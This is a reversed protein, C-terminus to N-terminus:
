SADDDSPEDSAKAEEEGGLERLSRQIEALERDTLGWLKAAQQDIEAEICRLEGAAGRMAAEHAHQSLEALRAHAPNAPDFKPIRVHDLIHPDPHLVIYSQVALRAASSNLYACLYHAERADTCAVLILTHDPITAKGDRLGVVAADLTHSVERWVVKWPAFTYDGINFM